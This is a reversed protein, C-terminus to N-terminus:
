FTEDVGTSWVFLGVLCVFLCFFFGFRVSGLLALESAGGWSLRVIRARIM